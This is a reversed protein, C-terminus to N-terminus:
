LAILFEDDEVESFDFDKNVLDRHTAKIYSTNKTSFFDHTKTEVSLGNLVIADVEDDEFEPEKGLTMLAKNANYRVFSKVKHELGIESYLQETYGYENDLLDYLLEHMEADVEEQEEKTLEEYLEQALMGVLSGHISEDAIIKNIIEGSAILIGQGALWLPFFFGSYFLFSELLVSAFMAKYLSKKDTINEYYSTIRYAKYQLYKNDEVWDFVADIEYSKDILTTFITSYSKAHINEMMSMFSLVSKRQLNDVMEAVKPMGITAQQTDLLTLGGLVHKYTEKYDDPLNSWAKRDKSPTYETDVWFQKLNQQWFALTFDDNVKNWNVAKRKKTSKLIEYKETIRPNM